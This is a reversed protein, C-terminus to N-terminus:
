IVNKGVTILLVKKVRNYQFWAQCFACGAAARNILLISSHARFHHAPQQSGCPPAGQRAAMKPRQWGWCRLAALGPTCTSSPRAEPGCYSSGSTSCRQIRARVGEPVGRPISQCSHSCCVHTRFPSTLFIHQHQASIPRRCWLFSLIARIQNVTQTYQLSLVMHM